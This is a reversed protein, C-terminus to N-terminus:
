KGQFQPLRKELFAALGEHCDQSRYCNLATEEMAAVDPRAYLTQQIALKHAAMTLPAGAALVLAYERTVLELKEEPVVRNV